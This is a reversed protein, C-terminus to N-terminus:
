RNDSKEDYVKNFYDEIYDETVFMENEGEDIFFMDTGFKEKVWPNLEDKLLPYERSTKFLLVTPDEWDYVDEKPVYRAARQKGKFAM